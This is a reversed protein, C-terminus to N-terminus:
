LTPIHWLQSCSCYHFNRWNRYFIRNKRQKKLIKTSLVFGFDSNKYKTAEASFLKNVDNHSFYWNQSYLMSKQNLNPWTLFWSYLFSPGLGIVQAYITNQREKNLHWSGQFFCSYIVMKKLFESSSLFIASDIFLNRSRLSFDTLKQLFVLGFSCYKLM